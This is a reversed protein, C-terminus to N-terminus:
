GALFERILKSVHELEQHISQHERLMLNVIDSALSALMENAEASDTSSENM